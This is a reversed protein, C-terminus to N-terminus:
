EFVEPVYPPMAHKEWDKKLPGTIRKGRRCLCGGGTMSIKGGFVELVCRISDAGGKKGEVGREGVGVRVM